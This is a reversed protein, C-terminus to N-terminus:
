GWIHAIKIIDGISLNQPRDNANIGIDSLKQLILRKTTKPFAAALNNLITKRPQQFLIRVTKYYKDADIRRYDLNLRTFSVIASDVRPRPRFENKSVYSIIKSAAWFQVSAALRNMQPPEAVLREAVEKQLMFIIREPKNPLEGILRLLQGTLYYPINGVVKFRKAKVQGGFGRRLRPKYGKTLGPLIKLIDGEIIEIRKDRSFKEKLFGALEEDKEVAIIKSFVLLQNVLLETLEGHGAGIEILIDKPKLELLGVIKELVAKNRLFHQGLRRPM